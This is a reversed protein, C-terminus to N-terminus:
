YVPIEEITYQSKDAVELKEFLNLDLLKSFYGSKKLKNFLEGMELIEKETRRQKERPKYKADLTAYIKDSEIKFMAFEKIILPILNELYLKRQSVCLPLSEGNYNTTFSLLYM